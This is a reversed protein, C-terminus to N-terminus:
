PKSHTWEHGMDYAMDYAMKEPVNGCACLVCLLSHQDIRVSREEAKHIRYIRYIKQRVLRVM